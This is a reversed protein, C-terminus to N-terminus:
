LCLTGPLVCGSALSLNGSGSGKEPSSPPTLQALRAYYMGNQRYFRAWLLEEDNCIRSYKGNSCKFFIKLGKSPPAANVLQEFTPVGSFTHPEMSVGHEDTFRVLVPGGAPPPSERGTSM